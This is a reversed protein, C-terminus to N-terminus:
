SAAAGGGPRRTVVALPSRSLGARMTAIAFKQNLVSALSQALRSIPIGAQRCVSVGVMRSVADGSHRPAPAGNLHRPATMDAPGFVLRGAPM